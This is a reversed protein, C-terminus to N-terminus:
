SRGSGVQPIKRLEDESQGKSKSHQLRGYYTLWEVPYDSEGGRSGRAGERVHTIYKRISSVAGAEEAGSEVPEAFPPLEEPQGEVPEEAPQDGALEPSEAPMGEMEDLIEATEDVALQPEDFIGTPEDFMGAPEDAVFGPEEYVQNSEYEAPGPEAYSEMSLAPPEAPAVQLPGFSPIAEPVIEPLEQPLPILELVGRSIMRAVIRCVGLSTLHLIARLDTLRSGNSIACIAAWEQPEIEITEGQAVADTSLRVPSEISPVIKRIMEWEVRRRDAEAVIEDVQLSVGIDEQSGEDPEFYYTGDEWEFIEFLADQIQERVFGTLVDQAVFGKSVLIAGLRREPEAHQVSLAEDLHERSIIGADVLRQGIPLRNEPTSAFHVTGDRFYVRGESGARAIVLQGTKSSMSIMRFIESLTFGSLNGQLGM